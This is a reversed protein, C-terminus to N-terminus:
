SCKALEERLANRMDRLPAKKGTWIEFAIAGQFLLMGLGTVARAKVKQAARTLATSPRNYVLDYVSLGGHLYREEIPAADGDKMGMPTANVLLVSRSVADRISGGAIPQLKRASYFTEYRKKLEEVRGRDLDTVYITEPRNGLHMVIARAAGGAGLITIRKKEPDFDLDSVLSRYFGAGDTNFGKLGREEVKITNVAGLRGAEDDLEGHTKIYQWAAVKHPITVNIGNINEEKLRSLFRTLGDPPIDFLRYDGQMGSAALAAHQMAPSFSHKVPHGVLGFRNPM